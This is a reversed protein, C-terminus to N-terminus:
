AARQEWYDEFRKSQTVCRLATIANAGRVTWEMASQKLRQGITTKCAAEVVGSGVFYGQKKFHAYRMREKNHEFYAIAKRKDKGANPAKPLLASAEKVLSEIDGQDLMDWWRDKYRNLRKTDRDFFLKCLDVLHERAHYLDIIHQAGPFHTQVINQIWRAGDTVVAVRKASFLGRRVTECYLRWAFLEASEIAGTFSTSGPDRIPRGKEDFATQTFVCGIKAERTRASGDQQKGKRGVLESKTMPVGTGDFEIYLTDITKPCDSPPPQEFRLKTRERSMWREMDEGIAESIREADKRSVYIGALENLDKSVEAFSEKAGLRATQRRVGPTFHTKVVDLEEDGPYRVEDCVPCQYCSRGFGVKGLLSQLGKYRVGRSQMVAGCRCRVVESRRGVGVDKLLAELVEAGASLVASKIASEM